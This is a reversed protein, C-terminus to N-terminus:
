KRIDFQDKLLLWNQPFYYGLKWYAIGLLQYREILEFKAQISRADEFWVIHRKRYDDTYEFYPAQATDNYQIHAFYERAIQVAQQPSIARAKSEGAIFPLTWDYGYLNQGLLIKEARIETLAYKLVNEVENIPSIARPEGTQYGWEMTLIVVFDAIKGHFEYDHAEYLLGRQERSTKPALATSLKINNNTLQPKIKKLFQNYAERDEEPVFEFDFHVVHFNENIATNVITDILKNQVAKVSLIIHALETSFTDGEINSIVMTLATHHKMAIQKYNNLPPATLSGDRNVHYAFPALYSLLPSKENAISELKPSVNDGIPEIYALTSLPKKEQPPIYLRLAVPLTMTPPIQNIRALLEVSMHYRQAILYLTDGPKVFYYHGVIPIVLSQGIILNPTTLHNAREIAEITTQFMNAIKYLTDGSQVVYIQM